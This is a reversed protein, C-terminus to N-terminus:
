ARRWQAVVRGLLESLARAADERRYRSTVFDRGRTGMERRAQPTMAALLLLAEALDAARGPQVVVGGGSEALITAAEGAVAAVVPVGRAMAELLKSPVSDALEGTRLSVFACGCRALRERVADRSEPLLLTVRGASERALAEVEGRCEGGGVITARLPRQSGPSAADRVAKALLAVDQARGLNGAYLAEFAGAEGGGGYAPEGDCWAADVGNRVLLVPRTTRAALKDLKGSSVTTVAACAGLLQREVHRLVFAAPSRAGIVGAEVLVDPWLDRLDLVLPLGRERAVDAGALAAVPPPASIVVVQAEFAALARRAGARLAARLRAQFLVNEVGGRGRPSVEVRRVGEEGGQAASGPAVVLVDHGLGRLEKAFSALRVAGAVPEPPYHPCILLVRPRAVAQASTM